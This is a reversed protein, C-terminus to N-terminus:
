WYEGQALAEIQQERSGSGASGNGGLMSQALANLSGDRFESLRDYQNLSERGTLMQEGLAELQDTEYREFEGLWQFLDPGETHVSLEQYWVVYLLVYHSNTVSEPLQLSCGYTDELVAIGERYRHLLESYQDAVTEPDLLRQSVIPQSCSLMQYIDKAFYFPSIGHEESEADLGLLLAPHVFFCDFAQQGDIYESHDGSVAALGTSVYEGIDQFLRDDHLKAFYEQTVALLQEADVLTEMEDESSLQTSVFARLYGAELALWYNEFHDIIEQVFEPSPEQKIFHQLNTYSLDLSDKLQLHPSRNSGGSTRSGGITWSGGNDTDIVQSGSGDSEQLRDRIDTAAESLSNGARGDSEFLFNWLLTEMGERGGSSLMEGQSRTYPTPETTVQRYNSTVGDATEVQVIANRWTAPVAATGQREASDLDVTTDAADLWSIQPQSEHDLATLWSQTAGLSIEAPPDVVLDVHASEDSESRIFIDKLRIDREPTDATSALDAYSSTVVSSPDVPDSIDLPFNESGFLPEGAGFYSPSSEVRLMGVELNGDSASSLLAAGTQNPSGYLCASWDQGTAIMFKAHIWRSDSYALEHVTVPCEMTNVVGELDIHTSGADILLAVRRPDLIDVIESVAEPSGFFPAALQLRDVDGLIAAVQPLIPEGINHVLQTTTTEPDPRPRETVWSATEVLRALQTGTDRGVYQERLADVLSIADQVVALAPDTDVTDRELRYQAGLQAASTMESLTMNASSIAFEAHDEATSLAIKPHFTEAVEIPELYYGNGVSGAQWTGDEFNQQYRDHDMLIVPTAIGADNFEHSVYETYFRADFPYTTVVSYEATSPTVADLLNM